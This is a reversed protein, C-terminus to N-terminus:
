KKRKEEGSTLCGNTAQFAAPNYSLYCITGLLYFQNKPFMSWNTQKAFPLLFINAHEAHFDPGNSIFLRLKPRGM